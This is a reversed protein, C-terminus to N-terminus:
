QNTSLNFLTLSSILNQTRNFILIYKFYNEKIKKRKTSKCVSQSTETKKQNRMRMKWMKGGWKGVHRSLLSSFNSLFAVISFLSFHWLFFPIRHSDLQLACSNNLNPPIKQSTKPLKLIKDRQSSKSQNAHICNTFFLKWAVLIWEFISMLVGSLSNADMQHCGFWISNYEFLTLLRVSCDTQAKFYISWFSRESLFEERRLACIFLSYFFIEITYRFLFMNEGWWLFRKKASQTIEKAQQITRIMIHSMRYQLAFFFLLSVFDKGVNTGSYGSINHLTVLVANTIILTSYFANMRM